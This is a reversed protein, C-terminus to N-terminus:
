KRAVAFLQNTGKADASSDGEILNALLCWMMYWPAMLFTIPQRLHPVWSKLAQRHVFGQRVGYFVRVEQFSERLKQELQERTYHRLHDPNTVPKTEGNPTTLIFTGGPKLVRYIQRVYASDDPVHEIVEVSAALDFTQDEYTTQTIDEFRVSEINSRRRRLDALIQDSLGLGLQKQVESERPLDVISVRCNVGITYPSKRGGVDLLSKAYPGNCLELLMRRVKLYHVPLFWWLCRYLLEHGTM